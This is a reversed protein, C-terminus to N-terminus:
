LAVQFWFDIPSVMENKNGSDPNGGGHGGGGSKGGGRGGMGGSKKVGGNGQKMSGGSPRHSANMQTKIEGSKVGFSFIGDNYKYDTFIETKPIVATYNLLGISDLTIGIEIPSKELPYHIVRSTGAGEFGVLELQQNNMQFSQYVKQSKNYQGFPFDSSTNNNSFGERKNLPNSLPYTWYKGKMKKGMEDIYVTLGQILIRFQSGFDSTSLTLYVNSSDHQVSYLVKSEIDFHGSLSSNDLNDKKIAQYKPLSACASFLQISITLLAYNRILKRISQNKKNM